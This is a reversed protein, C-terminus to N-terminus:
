KKAPPTVSITVADTWTIDVKDGVKVKALADKDEVKRSYKWGQPGDFTISPITPDIATITATITRQSAVTKAPHAGAGPTVGTKSTNVDAEGADKLRVTVNDYYRVQITDGVKIKDFAQVSKPVDINVLVDGEKRLTLSRTAHDIAEVKGSATVMTGPVEKIQAPAQAAAGLLLGALALGITARNM